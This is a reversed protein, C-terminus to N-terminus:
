ESKLSDVPNAFAAKMTQVGITLLAIVLILIAAAPFVWWGISTRYSFDNLWRNLFFWAIPTSVLFALLV